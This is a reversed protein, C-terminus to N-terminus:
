GSAEGPSLTATGRTAPISSEDMVGGSVDGEAPQDDETPSPAPDAGNQDSTEGMMAASNRSAEARLTEVVDLAADRSDAPITASLRQQSFTSLDTVEVDTAEDLSSLSIPGLSQPLGQYVAVSGDSAAVYYQSQVYRWGALGAVVMVVIVAGTVLLPVLPRRKPRTDDGWDALDADEDWHDDDRVASRATRPATAGDADSPVEGDEM